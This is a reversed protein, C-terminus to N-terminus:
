ENDNVESDDELEEVEEVIRYSVKRLERKEVFQLTASSKDKDFRFSLRQREEEAIMGIDVMAKDQRMKYQSLSVRFLEAEKANVFPIELKSGSLLLNYLDPVSGGLMDDPNELSTGGVIALM